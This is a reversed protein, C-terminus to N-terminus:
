QLKRVIVRQGDTTALWDGDPSISAGRDGTHVINEERYLEVGTAVDFVQLRFYPFLGAADTILFKSGNSYVLVRQKKGTSVQIGAPADYAQCYLYRGCEPLVWDLSAIKRTPRGNEELNLVEGDQVIAQGNTFTFLKKTTGRETSPERNLLALPTGGYAYDKGDVSVTVTGQQETRKISPEFRHPPLELSQIPTLSEDDVELDTSRALVLRGETIVLGPDTSPWPKRALVHGDMSLVNLAIQNVSRYCDGSPGSLLLLSNESLFQIRQQFTRCPTAPALAHKLDISLVRKTDVRPNQLNKIQAFVLAPIAFSILFILRLIRYM